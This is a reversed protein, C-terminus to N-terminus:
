QVGSAGFIRHDDADSEVADEVTEDVGLYFFFNNRRFRILTLETRM